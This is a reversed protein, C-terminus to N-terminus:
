CDECHEMDDHVIVNCKECYWMRVGKIEEYGPMYDDGYSWPSIEKNKSGLELDDSKEKRPYRAQTYRLYISEKVGPDSLMTAFMMFINIVAFLGCIYCVLPKSSYIFHM